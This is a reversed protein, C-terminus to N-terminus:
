TFKFNRNALTMMFSDEHYHKSLIVSVKFSLEEEGQLEEQEEVMRKASIVSEESCRYIRVSKLTPIEGLEAPFEKLSVGSLSLHELYPFHSSETMWWKLGSCWGLELYKLSPFQGEMTEWKGTRFYGGHLKFKQLLPLTSLKELIDEIRNTFTSLSLSMLCHPFTLKQLLASRLHGKCSLSELKQLREINHLCYDDGYEIDDDDDSDIGEPIFFFLGLKKINPIRRVMMEDCKFNRVGKLTQLNEMIVIKDSPPDPLHLGGDNLWDCIYFDVHRLQFMNWIEVPANMYEPPKSLDVLYPSHFILTQLSWLHNISSPLQSGEKYCVALFRLNVLKFLERLSYEHGNPDSFRLDPLLLSREYDSIYSRVHPKSRVADRVEKESTSRRIVVRRQISVGLPNHQGVVHYCREKEAERLCLDRLLDHIKLYKMNGTRGFEHVLILNRAVLEDLYEKVITELSKGNVPKVFGESVWLKILTSVRIKSDEEFMGMHVFCPKLYVPLHNYSLKLIKLCHKDNELNVLSNISGRISEWCETTRELKELLGGMVVISLPLGRCNEVIKKGIIELQLPCGKGGFVIQCFMNWSSEENLFKMEFSYNNDLQSGLNSLRTTVVIRSGNSNDPFYLQIKEWAEISWMDDLVILYRRNSLCKHLSLGIEDERKESLMQKDAQFLIECFLEKTNYQQSITVWACIDFHHTISPHAYVHEALTTKGIGGMGILPIVQRGPKGYILKEMLQIMVDDFCVMTTNNMRSFSSPSSNNRLMLSGAVVSVQRQLQHKIAVIEMVEKKILELDEILKVLSEYLDRSTIKPGDNTPEKRSRFCNFFGIWDRKDKSATLLIQDAIHSEIADESTYVAYAIRMELPDAEDGDAYPSKYGELFEQLFVVIDTLTEVQKKDVSIPLSPHHEIQDLIQMLSVLAAYAAM